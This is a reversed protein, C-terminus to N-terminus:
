ENSKVIRRNEYDILWFYCRLSSGWRSKHSVADSHAVWVESADFQNDLILISAGLQCLENQHHNWQAIWWVCQVRIARAREGDGRFYGALSMWNAKPQPKPKKKAKWRGHRVNCKCFEKCNRAEQIFVHNTRVSSVLFSCLFLLSSFAETDGKWKSEIINLRLLSVLPLLFSCLFRGWLAWLLAM